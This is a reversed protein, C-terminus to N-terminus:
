KLLTLGEFINDIPRNNKQQQTSSSTSPKSPKSAPVAASLPPSPPLEIIPQPNRPTYPLQPYPNYPPQPPQPPQSPQPPPGGTLLRQQAPPLFSSAPMIINPQQRINIRVGVAYNIPITYITKPTIIAYKDNLFEVPPINNIFGGNEYDVQGITRIGHTLIGMKITYSLDSAFINFNSLPYHNLGEHIPLGIEVLDWRERFRRLDIPKIFRYVFGEPYIDVVVAKNDVTYHNDVLDGRIQAYYIIIPIEVTRGQLTQIFNPLITIEEGPIAKLIPGTDGVQNFPQFTQPIPVYSTITQRKRMEEMQLERAKRENEQRQLERARRENEQRQLERTRRENEKLQRIQEELRRRETLDIVYRAERERREEEIQKEFIDRQERITEKLEEISPGINASDRERRLEKVERQLREVEDKKSPGFLWNFM